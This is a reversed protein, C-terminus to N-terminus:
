TGCKTDSETLLLISGLTCVTYSSVQQEPGTVVRPM